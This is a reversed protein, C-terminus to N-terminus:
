FHAVFCLSLKRILVKCNLPRRVQDLEGETVDLMELHPSDPQSQSQSVTSPPSDPLSQCQDGPGCDSCWQGARRESDEVEVELTRAMIDEAPSTPRPSPTNPLTEIELPGIMSGDGAERADYTSIFPSNTDQVTVLETSGDDHSVVVM